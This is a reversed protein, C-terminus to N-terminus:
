RKVVDLEPHFRGRNFLRQPDFSDRLRSQLRLMAGSLPQFAPQSLDGGACRMAHGGANSAARYVAAAPADSILWRQAGAWDLLWRGPLELVPAHDAVSIRWLAQDSDRDFLFFEHTLDRISNWLTDGEPLVDGGIQHRAAQVASASGSLRFYRKGDLLMAASLPLPKRLWASFSDPDRNSTEMVLSLEIEPKPLVKMSIDLIVGLTGWAGVQLRSVDYGAVNKMVEGGFALDQGLGNIIRTGLVFDRAAGTFPRRPGSLGCAIVGGITSEPLLPPDFPLMQDAADLRDCLDHVPTGARVSVVLETPEYSIIGRHELTSLPQCQATEVREGRELKTAGGSIALPFGTQAAVTVQEVLAASNDQAHM